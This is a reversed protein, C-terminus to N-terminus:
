PHATWHIPLNTFTVTGASANVVQLGFQTTTITGAIVGKIIVGSSSSVFGSICADVSQPAVPFTQGFSVTITTLGFSALSTASILADGSTPLQDATALVKWAAGTYYEVKDTDARYVAWGEQPTLADRETQGAVRIIGHALYNRRDTSLAGGSLGGTGTSAGAPVSIDRLAVAYTPLAPAGAGPTGKVVQVTATTPTSADAVIAVTDVRVLTAHGPDITLVKTTDLVFPIGVQGVSGADVWGSLGTCQVTMTGVIISVAGGGDLRIGPRARVLTNGQLHLADSARMRVATDLSNGMRTGYEAM